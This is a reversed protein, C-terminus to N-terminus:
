PRVGDKENRRAWALRARLIAVLVRVPIPERGLGLNCEACQAILNEDSNLEAETLGMELGEAVSLAHGVHLSERGGCLECRGSARMLLRARQKPKIGNHVTSVSRAERGTEVKPACYCFRDCSTCRVTDQGNKTIIRGRDHGCGPCPARMTIETPADSPQEDFLSGTSGNTM